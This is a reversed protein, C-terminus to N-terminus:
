RGVGLWAVRGLLLLSPALEWKSGQECAVIAANFSVVDPLLRLSPMQFLLGACVFDKLQRILGTADRPETKADLKLGNWFENQVQGLMRLVPFAEM